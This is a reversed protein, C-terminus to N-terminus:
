TGTARRPTRARVPDGHRDRAPRGPDTIKAGSHGDGTLTTALSTAPPPLTVTEVEGSTGCNSVSAKNFANGSYAAKWYYTGATKLTVAASAPVVGSAVTVAGAAAAVTTCASNSYVTYTVTGGALAANAGALTATDTVATGAVVSIKAGTKGGGSLSTTITTPLLAPTVTEVEGGPGCTSSSAGNLSDGPYQLQWYYTGPTTLTVPLSNPVAGNDAIPLPSGTSVAVTCAADSYVTYTVKGTATGANAGSLTGSDTVAAGATVTISTGSKGGGSLSTTLTTPPVTVTEVEGSPGCTSSSTANDRDGSYLAQWYYTGPTRLAVAASPPLTGPTSIPESAGVQALVTCAADAYVNYRVAGTASFDSTVSLTAADTVATGAPVSISTGGQGGGALTTTLSTRPSAATASEVEGNPGCASTSPGNASDGSYSAQWYYQGPWTVSLPQSAPLQGPTTVPEATGAQVLQTCAADSYVNYTVTGGATAADTGTLTATDTVQTDVPM